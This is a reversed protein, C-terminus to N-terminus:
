SSSMRRAQGAGPHEVYLNQAYGTTAGAFAVVAEAHVRVAEDALLSELLHPPWDTLKLVRNYTGAPEDARLVGYGGSLIVVRAGMKVADSLADGVAVYFAGTYRQWAPMLRHDDREAQTRLRERAQMLGPPWSAPADTTSKGGAVKSASCPLVILAREREVLCVASVAASIGKPTTPSASPLPGAARWNAPESSRAACRVFTVSRGLEV